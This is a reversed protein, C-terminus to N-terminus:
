TVRNRKGVITLYSIVPVAGYFYSWIRREYVINNVEFLKWRVSDYAEQILSANTCVFKEAKQRRGFSM